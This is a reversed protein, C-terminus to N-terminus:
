KIVKLNKRDFSIGVAILFIIGKILQQNQSSIRLITMGTVMFAITLTGIIVGRFKTSSGGTMPLGGLLAANLVNFILTSGTSNTASGTRALSIFGALGALAGTLMYMAICYKDQDIGTQRVCEKCSGIGKLIRGLVTKEFLIYGGGICVVLLTIKMPTNYLNRISLPAALVSGNLVILVAGQLIFMTGITAILSSIHTKAVIVGNIAGIVTGTLIAAPIAAYIGFANAALCGVACSVGMNYGISFDIYGMSFLFVFGTTGLVIYIADNMTSRLSQASFLSGKTMITFFLIIVILGLFPFINQIDIKKEKNM